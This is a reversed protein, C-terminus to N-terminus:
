KEKGRKEEERMKETGRGIPPGKCRKERGGKM